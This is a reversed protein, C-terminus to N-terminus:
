CPERIVRLLRDLSQEEFGEPVRVVMGDPLVIEYIRPAVKGYGSGAGGQEVEVLRTRAGGNTGAIERLRRRWWALTNPHLGRRRSFEALSLNSREAQELLRQMERGRATLETQKAM